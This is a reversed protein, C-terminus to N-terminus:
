KDKQILEPILRVIKMLVDEASDQDLRALPQDTRHIAQIGALPTMEYPFVDVAVWILTCAGEQHQTLFYPLEVTQIFPSNFFARSALMVVVKARAMATQIDNLWRSGPQIDRDIWPKIINMLRLANLYGMLQDCWYEDDHAYSVFVQDRVAEIVTKKGQSQPSIYLEDAVARASVVLDAWTITQSPIESAAKRAELVATAVGSRFLSHYFQNYFAASVIADVPRIPAIVYPVEWHHAHCDSFAKGGLNLTIFRLERYKDLTSRVTEASIYGSGFRLDHDTTYDGIHHWVHFPQGNDAADRLTNIYRLWPAERLVTLELMGQGARVLQQFMAEEELCETESRGHPSRATTLLIRIPPNIELSRTPIPLSPTRYIVATHAALFHGDNYLYEWATEGVSDHIFLRVPDLSALATQIPTGALYSAFCAQGTNIGDEHTAPYSVATLNQSVTVTRRIPSASPAYITQELTLTQSPDLRLTLSFDRM